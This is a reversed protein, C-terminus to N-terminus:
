PRRAVKSWGARILDVLLQPPPPSPENLHFPGRGSSPGRILDDVDAGSLTPFEVLGQAVREIASWHKGVMAMTKPSLQAFVEDCEEDFTDYDYSTM